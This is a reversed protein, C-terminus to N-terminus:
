KQHNRGLPRHLELDGLLWAVRERGPEAGIM